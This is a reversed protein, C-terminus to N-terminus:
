VDLHTLPADFIRDACLAVTGHSPSFDVYFTEYLQIRTRIDQCIWGVSWTVLEHRRLACAAKLVKIPHLHLQLTAEPGGSGRSWGRCGEERWDRAGTSARPPSRTRSRPWGGRCRCAPPSPYCAPPRSPCCRRRPDAVERRSHTNAVSGTSTSDKTNFFSCELGRRCM